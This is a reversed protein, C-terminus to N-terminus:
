TDGSKNLIIGRSTSLKKSIKTEGKHTYFDVLVIYLIPSGNKVFDKPIQDVGASTKNNCRKVTKIVKTASFRESWKKCLPSPPPDSFIMPFASPRKLENGADNALLYIPSTSGTNRSGPESRRLTMCFSWLSVKWFSNSPLPTKLQM